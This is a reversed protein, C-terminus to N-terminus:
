GRALERSTARVATTVGTEVFMAPAQASTGENLFVLYRVANVIFTPGQKLKYGAALADLLQKNKRFLADAQVRALRERQEETVDRARSATSTSPGPQPKGISPVWGARAFGFRVPTEITLVQWTRLTLRVMVREIFKTFEGSVRKRRRSAM